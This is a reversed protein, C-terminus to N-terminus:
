VSQFYPDNIWNVPNQQIYTSIMRFFHETRIIHDYFRPQWRFDSSTKRCEFTARGKVWRIVRSLNQHLMPNHHGTIGGRPLDLHIGENLETSVRNIADRRSNASEANHIILIGHVHNPMVVFEELSIFSFQEPIKEWICAVLEGEKSLHLEHGNSFGLYTYKKHTCITVFYAGDRSYDWWWARSSRIRYKNQYLESM